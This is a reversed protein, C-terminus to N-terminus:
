LGASRCALEEAAASIKGKAARWWLEDSEVKAEAVAAARATEEPAPGGWTRRVEVFHRPSLIEALAQESYEIPAGLVAASAEALLEALPRQTFKAHAAVLRGAIAHATGFPLGHARALTDALETLTTWGDGARAELGGADFEASALAAAVLTVSRVADHFMSFVMPQLDDETDVIDGFPTNHVSGIIAQAQGLAKSSLARSHELAVPNRKQPMISSSQVFGDGLRLYGFEATSWLLLDQLFRGHGVLLVAAASVSELLYDVTAISGYTNVTPEDFGLLRATLKRDIPFGTGTIACAGLPCCNTRRYAATLRATDRGLQEEVALLYHAVTTPQARQTHTHVAFITERHRGALELLTRRLALTAAMLELVSERQRMRYMTMDIDNRSRATHLRGAVSEGCQKALRREVYYFLDECRDDFVAGRVEDTSVADLALRITHADGAEVIGQAALMALHAYHISMLPALFFAKADEFNQQLVCSIYDAAFRTAATSPVESVPLKM